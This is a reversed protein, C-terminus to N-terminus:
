PDFPYAASKSCITNLGNEGAPCSNWYTWRTLAGANSIGSTDVELFWFQSIPNGNFAGALIVFFELVVAGAVSILSILVASQM